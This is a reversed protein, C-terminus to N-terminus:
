SQKCDKTCHHRASQSLGVKSYGSAHCESPLTALDTLARMTTQEQTSGHILMGLSRVVDMTLVQEDSSDAVVQLLDSINSKLFSVHAYESSQTPPLLNTLPYLAKYATLSASKGQAKERVRTIAVQLVPTLPCTIHTHRALQM